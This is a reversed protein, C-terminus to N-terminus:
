KRGGVDYLKRIDEIDSETLLKIAEQAQKTSYKYHKKILELNPDTEKKLWKSFRKQPRLSHRLYDYHMKKDIGPRTNMENVYMITDPFYSLCRNVVFPTYEKEIQPDGNFVDVKTDNISKLFDTLKM